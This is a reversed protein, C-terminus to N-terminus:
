SYACLDFVNGEPDALTAIAGYSEFRLPRLERAGLGVLRAVEAASEEPKCRLDLHQRAKGDGEIVSASPLLDPIRQLGIRRQKSESDGLVIWRGADEREVEVLGLAECWFHAQRETDIVDFTVLDFQAPM